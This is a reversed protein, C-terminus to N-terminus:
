EKINYCINKYFVSNKLAQPYRYIHCQHKVLMKMGPREERTIVLLSNHWIYKYAVALFLTKLDKGQGKNLNGYISPLLLEM